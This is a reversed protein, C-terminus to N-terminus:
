HYPCTTANSSNGLDQALIGLPVYGAPGGGRVYGLSWNGHTSYHHWVDYYSIWGVRPSDFTASQYVNHGQHVCFNTGRQDAGQAPAAAVLGALATLAVVVGARRASTTM